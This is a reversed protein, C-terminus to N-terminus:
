LLFSSLFVFIDAVDAAAAMLRGPLPEDMWGLALKRSFTDGM